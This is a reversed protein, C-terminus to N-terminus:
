WLDRVDTDIGIIGFLSPDGDIRVRLAEFVDIAGYEFALRFAEDADVELPSRVSDQSGRDYCGVRAVHDRLDRQGHSVPQAEFLNGVRDM